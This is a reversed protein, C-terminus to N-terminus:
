PLSNIAKRLEAAINLRDIEADMVCFRASHERGVTFFGGRNDATVVVEMGGDIPVFSVEVDNVGFDDPSRPRFDFEQVFPKPRHPNHEVETDALLFGASAIGDLVASMTRNPLLRVRDSDRSDVGGAVDVRTRLVTSTSCITIPASAPVDIEMPISKEELVGIRGPEVTASAVVIESHTNQDDGVEVLCHTVLELVVARLDQETDGGKIRVEGRLTEGVVVDTNELVTDVTAGGIGISCLVNKFM